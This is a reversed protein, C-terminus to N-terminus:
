GTSPKFTTGLDPLKTGGRVDSARYRYVEEASFRGENLAKETAEQGQWYPSMASFKKQEEPNRPLFEMFGTHPTKVTGSSPKAVPVSM